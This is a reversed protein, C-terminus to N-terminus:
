LICIDKSMLTAVGFMLFRHYFYINTIQIFLFLMTTFLLRACFHYQLAQFHPRPDMIESTCDRWLALIIPDYLLGEIHLM